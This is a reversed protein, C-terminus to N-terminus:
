KKLLEDVKKQQERDFFGLSDSVRRFLYTHSTSEIHECNSNIYESLEQLLELDAKTSSSVVGSSIIANSLIEISVLAANNLKRYGEQIDKVINRIDPIESQYKEKYKM